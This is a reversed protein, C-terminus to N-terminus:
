HIIVKDPQSAVVDEEKRVNLSLRDGMRSQEVVRYKGPATNSASSNTDDDARAWLPADQWPPM